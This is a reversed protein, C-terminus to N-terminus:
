QLSFGAGFLTSFIAHFKGDVLWLHLSFLSELQAYPLPNIQEILIDKYGSRSQIYAFLIGLM